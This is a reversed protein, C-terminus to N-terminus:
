GQKKARKILKQRVDHRLIKKRIRLSQPTVELLEDPGLYQISEDYPDYVSQGKEAESLTKKMERFIALHEAEMQAMDLLFKKTEDDAKEAAQRYFKAGNSEIEEAMEFIEEANFTIGM